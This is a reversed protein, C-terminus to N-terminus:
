PTLHVKNKILQAVQKFNKFDKSKEGVIDLFPIVKKTLDEIKTVVFDVAVKDSRIFVKGCGFYSVLSNILQEDRIHQTLWFTLGATEGLRYTSSKYM